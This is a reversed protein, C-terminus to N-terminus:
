PFATTFVPLRITLPRSRKASRRLRWFIFAIVSFSPLPIVKALFLFKGAFM